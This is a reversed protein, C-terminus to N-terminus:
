RAADVMQALRLFVGVIAQVGEDGDDVVQDAFARRLLDLQRQITTGIYLSQHHSEGDGDITSGAAVPLRWAREMLEPARSVSSAIAEPSVKSQGVVLAGAGLVGAAILVGGVGISLYRRNM